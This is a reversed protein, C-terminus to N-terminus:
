FIEEKIFEPLQLILLPLGQTQLQLRVLGFLMIRANLPVPELLVKVGMDSMQTRLPERFYDDFAEM